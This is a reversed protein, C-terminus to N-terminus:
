GGSLTLFKVGSCSPIKKKVVVSENRTSHPSNNKFHSSHVETQKEDFQFDIHCHKQIREM